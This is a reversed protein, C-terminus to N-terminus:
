LPSWRSIDGSPNFTTLLFSQETMVGLRGLGVKGKSVAPLMRRDCSEGM